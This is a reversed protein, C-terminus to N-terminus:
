RYVAANILGALLRFVFRVSFMACRIMLALIEELPDWIGESEESALLQAHFEMWEDQALMTPEGYLLTRSAELICFM